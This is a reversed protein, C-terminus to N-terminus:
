FISLDLENQNDSNFALIRPVPMETERRVFDIIAVEREAKLRPHVPLSIRMFCDCDSTTFKYLRNFVRQAYFVLNVQVETELGLYRRANLAIVDIEHEKTWRPELGFTTSAWKLGNQSAM